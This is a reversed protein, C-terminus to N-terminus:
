AKPITFKHSLWRFYYILHAIGPKEVAETLCEINNELSNQSMNKTSLRAEAVLVIYLSMTLELTFQNLWNQVEPNIGVPNVRSFFSQIEM